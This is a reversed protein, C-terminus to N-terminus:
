RLEYQDGKSILRGSKVREVINTISHWSWSRNMPSVVGKVNLWTAISNAPQGSKWRHIINLLVPYEKPHRTVVGEFYCFGYPPKANKKGRIGRVAARAEYRMPRLPVRACILIDRIATKSMGVRTEIERLSLGLKYFRVIKSTYERCNPIQLDIFDHSTPLM